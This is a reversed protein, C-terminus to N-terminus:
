YEHPVVDINIEPNLGRALLMEYAPSTWPFFEERLGGSTETQRFDVHLIDM